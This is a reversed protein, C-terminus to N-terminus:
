SRRRVMLLGAAAGSSLGIAAAPEPVIRYAVGIYDARRSVGAPMPASAVEVFFDTANSVVGLSAISADWVSTGALNATDNTHDYLTSSASVAANLQAYLRVDAANGDHRTMYVLFVEYTDVPLGTVSARLASASTGSGFTDMDAGTLEYVLAIPNIGGASTYPTTFVSFNRQAWLGDTASTSSTAWFTGAGSARQTNGGADGSKFTDAEVITLAIGGFTTNLTAATAASPKVILGLVIIVSIAIRMM